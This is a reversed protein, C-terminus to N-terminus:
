LSADSELDQLLLATVYVFLLVFLIEYAGHDDRASVNSFAM